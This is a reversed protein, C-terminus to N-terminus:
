LEKLVEDVSHENIAQMRSNYLSFFENFVERGKNDLYYFNSRKIIYGSDVLKSLKNRAGKNGTLENAAKATCRGYIGILACILCGFWSLEPFKRRVLYLCYGGTLSQNLEIRNMYGTGCVGARTLALNILFDIQLHKNDSLQKLLLM